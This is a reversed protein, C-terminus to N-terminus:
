IERQVGKARGSLTEGSLAGYGAQIPAATKSAAQEEIGQLLGGGLMMGKHLADMQQWNQDGFQHGFGYDHGLGLANAVDMAQRFMPMGSFYAHKTATGKQQPGQGFLSAAKDVNVDFKHGEDNDWLHRGGLTVNMLDAM